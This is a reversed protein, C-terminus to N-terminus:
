GTLLKARLSTLLGRLDVLDGHHIGLDEPKCVDSPKLTDWDGWLEGSGYQMAMEKGAPGWLKEFADASIPVYEADQGSVDSWVKLIDTFSLRDTRVNVYKGRANKPNRLAALAYAGVNAGVDGCIPLLADPKSPQMWVWKGGSLPLEFPRILPFFAMNASYWGLWMFTTKAALEPLEKRIRDDVHSKYDMHPVPREGGSLDKGSPLTSFIYHELTSTKSAALAINFAQSAEKEGAAEAGLGLHEWFNTVCFVAHAGQQVIDTAPWLPITSFRVEFAKVLTDYDDIDAAVM